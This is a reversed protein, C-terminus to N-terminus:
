PLEVLTVTLTAAVSLKPAEVWCYFKTGTVPEFTSDRLQIGGARQPALIEVFRATQGLQDIAQQATLTGHYTTYYVKVVSGRDEVSAGATWNVNVVYATTAAQLTIPSISFKQNGINSGTGFSQGNIAATTTM